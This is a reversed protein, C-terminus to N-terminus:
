QSENRMAASAVMTIPGDGLSSEGVVLRAIPNLVMFSFPYQVTVVSATATGTGISITATPNLAISTGSYAPYGPLHGAEMYARVRAQVADTQANPLVAVRAGERAANTLVQWCLFARGFEFIGVAVLLMLPLTLAVELMAAGRQGSRRGARARSPNAM